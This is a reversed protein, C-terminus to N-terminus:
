ENKDRKKRTYLIILIPLIVLCIIGAIFLILGLIYYQNFAEELSYKPIGVGWALTYGIKAIFENM